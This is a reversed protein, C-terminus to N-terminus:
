IKASLCFLLSKSSPLIQFSLFRFLFPLSKKLPRKSNKVKATKRGAQKKAATKKVRKKAKKKILKKM